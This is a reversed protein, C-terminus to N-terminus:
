RRPPGNAETWSQLSLTRRDDPQLRWDDPKRDEQEDNPHECEASHQKAEHLAGGPLQLGQPKAISLGSWFSIKDFALAPLAFM